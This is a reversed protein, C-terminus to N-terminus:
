RAMYADLITNSIRGRAPLDFGNSAAWERVKAPDYKREADGIRRGAKTYRKMKENFADRMRTFNQAELPDLDVQYIIGNHSFEFTEAPNGSLDSVITTNIKQAM